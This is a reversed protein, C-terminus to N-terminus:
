SSSTVTRWWEGGRILGAQAKGANWWDLAFANHRHLSAMLVLVAVYLAVGVWGSSVNRPPSPVLAPARNEEEYRELEFRARDAHQPDVVIAFRGHREVIANPINALRLVIQRNVCDNHAASEYVAFTLSSDSM